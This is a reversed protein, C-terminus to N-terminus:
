FLDREIKEMLESHEKDSITHGMDDLESKLDELHYKAMSLDILNNEVSSRILEYAFPNGWYSFQGLIKKWFRNISDHSFVFRKFVAPKIQSNKYLYANNSM